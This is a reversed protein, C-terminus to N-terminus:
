YIELLINTLCLIYESVNHVCGCCLIKLDDCIKAVMSVNIEIFLIVILYSSDIVSGGHMAM